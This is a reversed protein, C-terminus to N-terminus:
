VQLVGVAVVAEGRNREPTETKDVELQFVAMLLEETEETEEAALVVMVREAPTQVDRVAVILQALSMVPIALVPEAAAVEM